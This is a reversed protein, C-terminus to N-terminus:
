ELEQTALVDAGTGCLDHIVIDGMVIPAAPRTRYIEDACKFLLEKPIPRSTKVSFPKERDGARMLCTLVRQPAVAEQLGYTEGRKCTNGSVSVAKGDEMTVSLHCGLPCNICIFQKKEMRLAKRKEVTEHSRKLRFPLSLPRNWM